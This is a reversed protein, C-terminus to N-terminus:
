PVTATDSTAGDASPDSTAGEKSLDLVEFTFSQGSSVEVRGTSSGAVGKSNTIESVNRNSEDPLTWKGTVTAGEVPKGSADAVTIAALADTLKGKKKLTVKVSAIHIVLTAPAAPSGSAENSHGSENSSTDM